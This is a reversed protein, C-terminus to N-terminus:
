KSHDGPEVQCFQIYERIFNILVPNQIDNHDEMIQKDVSVVLFPDGPHFGDVPKLVTDDFDYTRPPHDGPQWKSRQAKINEHSALLRDPSSLEHRQTAPNLTSTQTTPARTGGRYILEHTVFPAYWGVTELDAKRQASDRYKDFITSFFRSIPFVYHTAWDGKSTFISLVPRQDVQYHEISHAMQDLDYHRGAEFAPNLLIIQDGLPKLRKHKLISDAFRETIIQSVASYVAAAGLSHGIIILETRAAGDPIKQLSEKQINDLDVLLETMAGYGGVKHATDKREWISLEKFPEWTASLGRWAGYVGVVKRAPHDQQALEAKNLQALISRFAQLAGDDRTANDKWGHVFAVLIIGQAAASHTSGIGAEERIMQEVLVRQQPIWFWGQDDFEVIGLKYDPTTEIVAKTPDVGPEDDARLTTRIPLNATCGVMSMALAGACLLLAATTINM